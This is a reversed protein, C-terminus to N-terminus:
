RRSNPHEQANGEVHAALGATLSDRLIDHKSHFALTHEKAHVVPLAAVVPRPCSIFTDCVLLALLYLLGWRHHKNTAYM